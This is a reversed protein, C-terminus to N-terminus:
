IDSDLTFWIHILWVETHGLNKARNGQTMNSYIDPLSYWIGQVYAWIYKYFFALFRDLIDYSQGDFIGPLDRTVTATDGRLWPKWINLVLWPYSLYVVAVPRLDRYPSALATLFSVTAPRCGRNRIDAVSIQHHGHNRSTPWPHGHGTGPTNKCTTVDSRRKIPPGRARRQGETTSGPYLQGLTKEGMWCLYTEIDLWPNIKTYQKTNSIYNKEFEWMSVIQIVSAATDRMVM